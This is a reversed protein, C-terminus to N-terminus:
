PAAQGMRKLVAQAERTSLAGAAGGALMEVVQRAEPTGIGELVELGRVLRVQETSLSNGTLMELLQEIRKRVEPSQQNALAQKLFPVAQEGTKELERTARERTAFEESDLDAIWGAVKAPDVAAAPRLRERLLPLTRRPAASLKHIAQFAKIGDEGGLDAWLAEVERPQLDAAAPKAGSGLRSADWVLVTTDSSGTILTRGDAAFAVATLSGEHGTASGTEKGTAVDLMRVSSGAGRCALCRGDPAFAIIPATGIGSRGFAGFFMVQGQGAQVQAVAGQGLRGREKCTAIEWLTVTRDGDETALTRGDPSFAFSTIAAGAPLLIQRVEKGTDVEWLTLAVQPGGPGNVGNGVLSAVLRGDPSFVLGPGVEAEGMRVLVNIMPAGQAAQPQVVITRVEKGTAIEFFRITNDFTGRSALLKGEPSFALVATGNRHGTLRRLEKGTVTDHLRISNDINALAVTRGDAAVAAGSTGPPLTFRSREKGTTADWLRITQDTGRTAVTKGDPAIALSAISERHGSDPIAEKGTATEWLHITHGGGAAIQKGDPSFALDRSSGQGSFFLVAQNSGAGDGLPRLLKGTEPDYLRVLSGWMSKVALGKGDPSFVLPGVGNPQGEIRRVEKGTDTQYLHVTNNSGFAIVKGDPRFALSSLTNQQELSIRRVEKGTATEVFRVSGTIKQNAFLMEPAALSKGDPSFALGASTFPDGIFFIGQGPKNEHAIQRVEKGSATEWLRITQDGGRTALTKGDPSFVLAGFSNPPAKFQSLEKGTAVDWMQVTGDPSGIALVKGDPALAVSSNGGYGTFVLVAGPWAHLGNGPNGQKPGFRRIEKGTGLDWLHATGDEGATLLAKGDRTFATFSVTTGHRWRITGLRAIAGGPLPDGSRDLRQEQGASYLHGVWTLLLGAALLIAAGRRRSAIEATGSSSDRQLM